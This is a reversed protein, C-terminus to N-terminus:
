VVKSGNATKLFYYELDSDTQANSYTFFGTRVTSGNSVMPGIFSHRQSNGRLEALVVKGWGGARGIRRPLLASLHLRATFNWPKKPSLNSHLQVPTNEFIPTGWFPHNIIFFGILVSSKPTGSNESVDMYQLVNSCRDSDPIAKSAM